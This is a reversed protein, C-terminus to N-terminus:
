SRPKLWKTISKPMQKGVKESIYIGIHGSAFSLETFDDSTVYQKLASSAAPPVIEDQTAIINLVPMDINSLKVNQHNIYINNEILQNEKYFQNALESFAQAPQDPADHLWKEVLLFRQTLEEDAIEDVFKLYKKGLLQFPRLSIFFQTLWAGKINGVIKSWEKIDIKNLFTAVLHDPVHFDVPTSILILNKVTNFLTAYCLSILGGQCIGLLNIQTLQRKELMFKVCDHLYVTVYDAISIAQDDATPYGWDLLYVDSGSDLLGRIFSREPFLDLIEPRNVTAFVVLLPTKLPNKHRPAYHYLKVKDHQYVLERQNYQYSLLPIQQLAVFGAQIHQLFILDDTEKM